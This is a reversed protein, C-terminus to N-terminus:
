QKEIRKSINDKPSVDVKKALSKATTILIYLGLAFGSASGLLTYVPSSGWKEDLFYGGFFGLCMIVCFEIGLGTILLHDQKRIM